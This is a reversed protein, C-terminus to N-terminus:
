RAGQWMWCETRESEFNVDTCTSDQRGQSGKERQGAGAWGKIAHLVSSHASAEVSHLPFTGQQSMVKRHTTKWHMIWPERRQIELVGNMGLGMWSDHQTTIICIWTPRRRLGKSWAGKRVPVLFLLNMELDKANYVTVNYLISMPKENFSHIFSSSKMTQTLYNMGWLNLLHIINKLRGLKQFTFM